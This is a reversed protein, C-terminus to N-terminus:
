ASKPTDNAPVDSGFALEGPPMELAQAIEAVLRLTGVGEREYEGVRRQDKQLREALQAISLGLAKRRATIRAGVAPNPDQGRTM